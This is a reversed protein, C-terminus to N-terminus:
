KDSGTVTDKYKSPSVGYKEKFLRSFHTRSKFGTMMCVENVNYEDKVLLEAARQLRYSKLLEYPSDNALAKVKQFFLSRNIGMEKALLEMDVEENDLYENFKEYLSCIFETDKASFDNLNSGIKLPVGSQFREWLKSRNDLLKCIRILVYKPYFPKPIYADAGAQVGKIEDDVTNCATLLIVPIHSTKLDSKIISCLENGDMETMMVDSIIIDPWENNMADLCEKAGAFSKVTFFQGLIDTLFSRMETNDEVLYVKSHLYEADIQISKLNWDGICLSMKCDQEESESDTDVESINQIIPLNVTFTSGTGLQSEVTITGSHMEILRKTFALGIGTGGINNMGQNSAQYFREFIHPLDEKSIGSGTDFVKVTLLLDNFSVEIGIKDGPNTHKFSNSLLNNIIQEIMSYDAYVNINKDPVTVVFDKKDYDAMFMFDDSIGSLFKNFSFACPKVKLMNRENLQLEHSLEILQLMKKAQRKIIALKDKVDVDMSFRESLVSLPALILTLPTKLEHSINSFFKQKEMNLHELNRKRIAEALLEYKFKQVRMMYYVIISVILLAVLIYLTYALASQRFPPAINIKIIMPETWEDFSNSASLLLRYNDPKLGYFYIRQEKAPIQVWEKSYPELKFRIYHDSAAKSYIADIDFSISNENHELELVDNDSLRSKLIVRDNFKKNPSVKKNLINFSRIHLQPLAEGQPLLNPNFYCLGDVGSFVLTGNNMITSAYWFDDFPLGDSTRYVHFSGSNKRYINLGINTAIWLNGMKDCLLSKVVNNSLGNDESFPIFKMRKGKEEIAKCLGGQETGIWLVGSNDRLICSVFNSSLAHKDSADSMYHEVKIDKLPKKKDIYLKYLGQVDTGVLLSSTQEDWYISRVKSIGTSNFMANQHVSEIKDIQNDFNFSIRYLNDSYGLWLNGLMDSYFIQPADDKLLLLKVDDYQKLNQSKNYSYLHNNRTLIWLTGFRDKCISKIDNQLKSSIVSGYDTVEDRKFDYSYLKRSNRILISGNNNKVIQPLKLGDFDLKKFVNNHISYYYVGGDFTSICYNNDDLFLVQSIRKYDLFQIPNITNLFSHYILVGNNVTGIWIRGNYEIEFTKILYGTNIEKKINVATIVGKDLVVDVNYLSSGSSVFVENNGSFRLCSSSKIKGNDVSHCKKDKINYCLLGISTSLLYNDEGIKCMENANLMKPYQIHSILSLDMNFELLGDSESLCLMVDRSKDYVIQRIIFNSKSKSLAKNSDSLNYFVDQDYDFVTVGDDTGLWLRGKKDEAIARIRNSSFEKESLTNKYSKIDFGNYQNLGDYTCIWQYGRSDRMMATVGNHSLGNSININRINYLPLSNKNNSFLNIFNMVLFIFYIIRKM